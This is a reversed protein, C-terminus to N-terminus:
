VFNYSTTMDITISAGCEPCEYEESDTDEVAGQEAALVAETDPADEVVELNEKIIGELATSLEGNMGDLAEIAANDMSLLSEIKDIGNNRLVSVLEESVGPLEAVDSIEEVPPEDSFLNEVAKRSEATLDLEAFQEETKVDISWDALRNALRVNLGQKGIALTIVEYLM